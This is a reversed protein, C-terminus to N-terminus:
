CAGAKKEKLVLQEWEDEDDYQERRRNSPDYAPAESDEAATRAAAAASPEDQDTDDTPMFPAPQDEWEDDDDDLDIDQLRVAQRAAASSPAATAALTEAPAGDAATEAPAAACGPQCPAATVISPHEEMAAGHVNARDVAQQASTDGPQQSGTQDAAAAQFSLQQLQPLTDGAQDAMEEDEQNAADKPVDFGAKAAPSAKHRLEQDKSPSGAPKNVTMRQLRSLRRRAKPQQEGEICVAAVM